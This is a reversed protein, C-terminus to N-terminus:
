APPGFSYGARLLQPILVRLAAVTAARNGGGDHLLIVSGPALQRHVQRVISAASRGREWDRPDVSWGLPQMEQAAAATTLRPSWNGGPARFYRVRAGPAVQEILRKAAGIEYQVRDDPRRRLRDDHTMTHNCLWHGDAVIQRVLEPHARVQTGILCFTARVRYQRLLALVQPTYRPHPGDDLTLAVWRGPRHAMGTMVAATVPDATVPEQRAPQPPTVRGTSPPRTPPTVWGTWSPRTPRPMPSPTLVALTNASPLAATGIPVGPATRVRASPAPQAAAVGFVLVALTLGMSLAPLM